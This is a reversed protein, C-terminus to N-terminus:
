TTKATRRWVIVGVAPILLLAGTGPEPIATEALDYSVDDMVFSQGFADGTIVIRAIGGAFAVQLLENPSSGPAGTFGDNAGFLSTTFGVSQNAGDFAELTLPM